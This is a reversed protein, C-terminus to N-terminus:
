PVILLNSTLASSTVIEFLRSTLSITTALPTSVGTCPLVDDDPPPPPLRGFLGPVDVCSLTTALTSTDPSAVTDTSVGAVNVALTVFLAPVARVAASTLDALHVTTSASPLSTASVTAVIVGSLFSLNFAVNVTVASTASM